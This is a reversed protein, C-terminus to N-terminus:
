DSALEALIAQSRIGDDMEQMKLRFSHGTNLFTSMLTPAM